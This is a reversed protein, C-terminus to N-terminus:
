SFAALLAYENYINEVALMYFELAYKAASKSGQKPSM